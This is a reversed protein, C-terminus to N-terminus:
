GIGVARESLRDWEHRPLELLVGDGNGLSAGKLGAAMLLAVEGSVLRNQYVVALELSSVM